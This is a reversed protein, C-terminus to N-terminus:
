RSYYEVILQENIATSIEERAPEKLMQGTMGEVDLSLWGPVAGEELRKARDKFYTRKLSVERVSIVDQPRILYSPTTTRTGNVVFHGHSVLQRAQPRSDAFGLRYVINDLRRELLILLNEGTLGPRGEAKEFFRRFQRELLGYIRKAKQKERLQRAYDSQRRRRFRALWGHDGPPYGRKREFPCKSSFCREGKLFLKEGERRCLKCVPGKYRAM